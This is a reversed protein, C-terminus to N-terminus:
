AATPQQLERKLLQVLQLLESADAPTRRWQDKLLSEASAAVTAAESYGFAGFEGRLTHAETTARAELELDLKGFLMADAARQLMHVRARVVMQNQQWVAAMSINIDTNIGM